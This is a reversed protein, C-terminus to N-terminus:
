PKAPSTILITSLTSSNPKLSSISKLMEGIIIRRQELHKKVDGIIYTTGTSLKNIETRLNNVIAQVSTELQELGILVTELYENFDIVIDEPEKLKDPTMM